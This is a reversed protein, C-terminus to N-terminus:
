GQQAMTVHIGRTIGKINTRTTVKGSITIRKKFYTGILMNLASTKLLKNNCVDVPILISHVTNNASMGVTKIAIQVLLKDRVTIIPTM